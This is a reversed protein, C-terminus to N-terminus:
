FSASAGSTSQGSHLLGAKRLFTLAGANRNFPPPQYSVSKLVPLFFFRAPSLEASELAPLFSAPSLEASELAPLFVSLLQYTNTGIEANFGDVISLVM